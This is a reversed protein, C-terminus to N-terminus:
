LSPLTFKKFCGKRGGGNCYYSFSSRWLGHFLVERWIWNKSTLAPCVFQFPWICVKVNLKKKGLLLVQVLIQPRSLSNCACHLALRCDHYSLSSDWLSELFLCKTHSPEAQSEPARSRTELPPTANTVESFPAPFCGWDRLFRFVKSCAKLLVVIGNFPEESKEQRQPM